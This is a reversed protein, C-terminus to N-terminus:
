DGLPYPMPTQAIRRVIDKVIMEAQAEVRDNVEDSSEVPHHSPKSLELLSMMKINLETVREIWQYKKTRSELDAHSFLEAELCANIVKKKIMLKLKGNKTLASAMKKEFKSIDETPVSIDKRM